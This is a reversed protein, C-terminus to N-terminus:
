ALATLRRLMPISPFRDAQIKSVLVDAYERLQQEDAGAEVMDMMTASPYQDRRVADILLGYVAEQVQSRLDRSQNDPSSM